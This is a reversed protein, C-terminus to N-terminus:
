LYGSSVSSKIVRMYVVSLIFPGYYIFLSSFSFKRSIHDDAQLKLLFGCFGIDFKLKNKNVNTLLGNGQLLSFSLAKWAGKHFAMKPTNLSIDTINSEPWSKIQDKIRFDDSTEATLAVKRWASFIYTKEKVDM